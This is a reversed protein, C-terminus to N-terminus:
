LGCNGEYSAINPAPLWGPADAYSVQYWLAGGAQQVQSAEYTGPLVLSSMQGGVSTSFEGERTLVVRCEGPGFTRQTAAPPSPLQTVNCNGQELTYRLNFQRGNTFARLEHEENYYVGTSAPIAIVFNGGPNIVPYNGYGTFTVEGTRVNVDQLTVTGALSAATNPNAVNVQVNFQQNCVARGGDIAMGTPVAFVALSPQQPQPAQPAQPPLPAPPNMIPVASFDGSEVLVTRASWGSVGSDLRVQYWTKSANRGTVVAFTQPALSAIAPCRDNDAIDCRRVNTAVGVPTVRPVGDQPPAVQTPVEVPATGTVGQAENRIRAEVAAFRANNVRLPSVTYHFSQQDQTTATLRLAYVGDPVTTTDLTALPGDIVPTTMAVTAPVWPANEPETLDNSLHKYELYYYMMDPLNVTGLVDGVSWVETVPPPWSIVLTEGSTQPAPSGDQAFVSTPVLVLLLVVLLSFRKM